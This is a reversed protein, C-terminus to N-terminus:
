HSIEVHLARVREQVPQRVPQRVRERVSCCRGSGQLERTRASGIIGYIEIFVPDFVSFMPHRTTGAFLRLYGPSGGFSTGSACGTGTFLPFTDPRWM